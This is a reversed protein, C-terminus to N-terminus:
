QRRGMAGIGLLVLGALISSPEPVTGFTASGITSAVAANEFASITTGHYAVPTLFLGGPQEGAPAFSTTSNDNICPNTPVNRCADLGSVFLPSLPDVAAQSSPYSGFFSHFPNIGIQQNIENIGDVYVGSPQGPSAHDTGLVLGGGRNALQLAYNQIWPRESSMGNANTWGSASSIIRGDVILNQDKRNNFWDAINQYNAMQTNNNNAGVMLDYVWVQDFDDYDDYVAQNLFRQTVDVGPLIDLFAVLEQGDDVYVGSNEVQNFLISIASASEANFVVTTVLL